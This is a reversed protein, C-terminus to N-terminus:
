RQVVWACIEGNQKTHIAKTKTSVKVGDVSQLSTSQSSSNGRRGNSSSKKRLNVNNVTVQNQTAIRDIARSIALDKQAEIGKFHTRACGVAAIKDNDAYPDLLWKPEQNKTVATSNDAKTTFQKICGSFLIASVIILSKILM